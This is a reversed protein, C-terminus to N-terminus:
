EEEKWIDEGERGGDEIGDEKKRSLLKIGGIIFILSIISTQIYNMLQYPILPYLIREIVIFIGIGILTWGIWEPKISVLIDPFEDEVVKNDNVMHFADFFSYFWILPLLFLLLSLGLWGMFFITFFFIGMLLLGKKECGLYMHGAGPIISLAMTITKRNSGAIDEKSRYGADEGDVMPRNINFNKMLSFADMLAVLWILPLAFILIIAIESHIIFAFGLAGMIAGLFVMLFILGRDAFGIYFHSLGPIFSLIFTIFKSKEKM